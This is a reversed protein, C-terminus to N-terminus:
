RAGAILAGCNADKALGPDVFAFLAAVPAAVTALLATLGGQAALQGADVGIHPGTLPGTVNIPAWLRLLRPKKSEGDIRLNLTEAGLDISGSGKALVVDTDVVFTLARAVGGSVNFDAVACRITAQSQDGRLLKLLGASANIGLLEAFAARMEGQPVVLSISGKSGAAFRHVSAGAGELRARGLARGSIPTSGNAAPIISELPYGALRFDIASYPIDRTANIRATGNLSGRNFSFAVPDLDLVGAKLVAGLRVARIDLDNAKVSAAEYTLTGDMTRLREVNLPADPLLKGPAGSSVTTTNAGAADTQTRAGLIATLDNVDLRRSSLKADVKLRGAAEVKVDGSLDSAGVRGTFGNFTWTSGDRKLAGALRYAPTNPLTVGTLLYLDSLDQGELTLTSQFRGLDFPRTVSGDAMLRSGAGALVANFHYPRDRRINIFPGGEIRLTLPSKNLAGTGALVFGAAGDDAAERANVTADLTLDRKQEEVVVHGDQIILQQIVPLKLGEGTDPKGPNLDWSKRGDATAVLFVEARAISLRPLEIQGALLKRLRVSAEIQGIDATDRARSWTPGGFKLDRVIVSPTWSFLNVDLDGQLAIERDYKVSAWRGIPGRLWNWDFVMLFVVIAAVLLVLLAGATKEARGPHRFSTYIPDNERIRDRWQGARVGVPAILRDRVHSWNLSSNLRNPLTPSKEHVTQVGSHRIRRRSRTM